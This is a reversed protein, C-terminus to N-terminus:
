RSHPKALDEDLFMQDGAFVQIAREFQLTLAAIFTVISSRM